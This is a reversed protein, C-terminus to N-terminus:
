IAVSVSTFRLLDLGALYEDPPEMIESQGTLPDEFHSLRDTIVQFALVKVKALAQKQSDGYSMVGPLELIEAIWRGDEEQELEVTLTLEKADM